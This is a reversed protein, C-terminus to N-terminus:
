ASRVAFATPFIPKRRLGWAYYFEKCIELCESRSLYEIIVETQHGFDFYVKVNLVVLSTSLYAM